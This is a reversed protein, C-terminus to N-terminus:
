HWAPATTGAAELAQERLAYDVVDVIRGGRVRFVNYLQGRLEKEGVESLGPVKAGLVVTEDGAAILEVAV